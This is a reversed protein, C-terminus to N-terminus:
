GSPPAMVGGVQPSLGPFLNLLRRTANTIGQYLPASALSPSLNTIDLPSLCSMQERSNTLCTVMPNFCCNETGSSCPFGYITCNLLLTNGGKLFVILLFLLVVSRSM